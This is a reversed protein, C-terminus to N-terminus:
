VVEMKILTVNMEGDTVKEMLALQITKREEDTVREHLLKNDYYINWYM